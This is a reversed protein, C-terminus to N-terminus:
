GITLVPNLCSDPLNVVIASRLLKTTLPLLLQPLSLWDPSSVWFRLDLGQGFMDCFAELSGPSEAFPYRYGVEGILSFHTGAVQDTRKSFRNLYSIGIGSM